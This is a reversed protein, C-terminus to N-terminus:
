EIQKFGENILKLCNGLDRKARRRAYHMGHSGIYNKYFRKALEDFGAGRIYQDYVKLYHSYQKTLVRSESEKVPFTQSVERLRKQWRDVLMNFEDCIKQKALHMNVRVELYGGKVYVNKNDLSDLDDVSNIADIDTTLSDIYFTGSEQDSKILDDFSLQPPIPTLLNWKSLIKLTEQGKLWIDITQLSWGGKEQQLLKTPTFVLVALTAWLVLGEIKMCLASRKRPM